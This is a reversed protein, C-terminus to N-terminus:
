EYIITKNSYKIILLKVEIKWTLWGDVSSYNSISQWEMTIWVHLLKGVSSYAFM